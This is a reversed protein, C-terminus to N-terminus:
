ADLAARTGAWTGPLAQIAARIAATDGTKAATEIEVLTGRLAIAGFMAASGATKHSRAQIEALPHDQALWDLLADVEEAFRELMATTGEAGLTDRLEDLQATDVHLADASPAATEPAPEPPTEPMPAETWNCHM